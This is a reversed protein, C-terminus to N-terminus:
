RRPTLAISFVIIFFLILAIGIIIWGVVKWTEAASYCTKCRLEYSYGVNISQVHLACSLANCSQCRTTAPAACAYCKPGPAVQTTPRIPHGCQPCAEAEASIQRGCVPCEILPM